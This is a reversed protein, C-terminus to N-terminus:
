DNEMMRIFRVFQESLIYWEVGPNKTSPLIFNSSQVIDRIPYSDERTFRLYWVGDYFNLDASKSTICVDRLDPHELLGNRLYEFFDPHRKQLEMFLEEDSIEVDVKYNNTVTQGVIKVDRNNHFNGIQQNNSGDQKQKEGGTIKCWLWKIPTALM